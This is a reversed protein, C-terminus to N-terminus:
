RILLADLMAEPDLLEGVFRARWEAVLETDESAATITRWLDGNDVDFPYRLLERYDDLHDPARTGGNDFVIASDWLVTTVGRAIALNGFTSRDAVVCDTADIQDIMGPAGPEDGRVFTVGPADFLGNEDITGLHRVTLSIPCRLLREFVDTNRQPYRPNGLYPPHTPALLVKRVPGPRRALLDCYPWGVIHLPLPYGWSRALQAYGPAIVLAGSLRPYIPYLGDWNSMLAPDAGHPYLFARGGSDVCADVLPLKGHFPADHDILVADAGDAFPTLDNGSSVVAAEFAEAKGQHDSIAVALRRRGTHGRRPPGCVTLRVAVDGWRAPYLRHERHDVAAARLYEPGAPAQIHGSGPDAEVEVVVVQGAVGVLMGIERALAAPDATAQFCGVYAVCMRALRECGLASTLEDAPNGGAEEDDRIAGGAFAADARFAPFPAVVLLEELGSRRRAEDAVTM